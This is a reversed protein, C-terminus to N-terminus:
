NSSNENKIRKSSEIKELIISDLNIDMNPFKYNSYRFTESLVEEESMFKGGIALDWKQIDKYRVLWQFEYIPSVKKFESCFVETSYFLLKNTKLDKVVALLYCPETRTEATTLFEVRKDLSNVFIDGKSINYDKKKDAENKLFDFVREM